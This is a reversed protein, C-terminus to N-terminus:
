IPGYRTSQIPAAITLARAAPSSIIIRARFALEGSSGRASRAPARATKDTREHRARENVTTSTRAVM